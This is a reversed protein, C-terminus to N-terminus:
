LTSVGTQHNPTQTTGECIKAINRSTGFIRSIRSLSAVNILKLNLKHFPHPGLSWLGWVPTDVTHVVRGHSAASTARDRAGEADDAHASSWLLASTAALDDSSTPADGTCNELSSVVNHKNRATLEAATQRGKRRSVGVVVLV